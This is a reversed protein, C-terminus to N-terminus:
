IVAEGACPTLRANHARWPTAHACPSSRNKGNHAFVAVSAADGKRRRSPPNGFALRLPQQTRVVGAKVVRGGRKTRCRRARYHGRETLFRCTCHATELNALPCLGVPAKGLFCKSVGQAPSAIILLSGEDARRAAVEWKPNGCLNQTLLLNTPLPPAPM